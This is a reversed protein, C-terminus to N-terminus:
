SKNTKLTLLKKFKHTLSDWRRFGPRSLEGHGNKKRSVTRTATQASEGDQLKRLVIHNRAVRSDSGSTWIGDWLGYSTSFYRSDLGYAVGQTCYAYWERGAVIGPVGSIGYEWKRYSRQTWVIIDGEAIFQTANAVATKASVVALRGPLIHVSAARVSNMSPGFFATVIKRIDRRDANVHYISITGGLCRNYDIISPDSSVRVSGAGTVYSGVFSAGLGSGNIHTVSLIQNPANKFSYEQGQAIAITCWDDVKEWGDNFFDSSLNLQYNKRGWANNIYFGDPFSNPNYGDLGDNFWRSFALRGNYAADVVEKATLEKSAGYFM